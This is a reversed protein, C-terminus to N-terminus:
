RRPSYHCSALQEASTTSQHHHHSTRSPPTVTETMPSVIVQALSSGPSQRRRRASNWPLLPLRFRVRNPSESSRSLSAAPLALVRRIPLGVLNCFCGRLPNPTKTNPRLAVPTRRGAPAQSRRPCKPRSSLQKSIVSIGLPQKPAPSKCKSRQIWREEELPLAFIIIVPTKGAPEGARQVARSYYCCVLHAHSHTIIASWSRSM